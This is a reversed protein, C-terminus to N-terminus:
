GKDDRLGLAGFGRRGKERWAVLVLGEMAFDVMILQQLAAVPSRWLHPGPLPSHENASYVSRRLPLQRAVSFLRNPTKHNNM